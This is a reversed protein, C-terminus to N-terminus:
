FECGLPTFSTKTQEQMQNCVGTLIMKNNPDKAMQSWEQRWQTLSQKFQAQQDAPVKTALCTEYKKLFDDCSPIGIEQASAWSTGITVTAILTSLATKM